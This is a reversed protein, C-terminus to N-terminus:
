RISTATREKTVHFSEFVKEAVEAPMDTGTIGNM